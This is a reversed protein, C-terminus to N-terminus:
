NMLDLDSTTVFSAILDVETPAFSEPVVKCAVQFVSNTGIAALCRRLTM